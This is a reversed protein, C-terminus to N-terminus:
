LARSLWRSQHPQKMSGGSFLRVAVGTQFKPRLLNNFCRSVSNKKMKSALRSLAYNIFNPLLSMMTVFGVKVPDSTGYMAKSNWEEMWLILQFVSVDSRLLRSEFHIRNRVQMSAVSQWFVHSKPEIGYAGNIRVRM